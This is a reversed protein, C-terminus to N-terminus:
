FHLTATMLAGQPTPSINVGLVNTGFDTEFMSKYPHRKEWNVRGASIPADILSWIELSLCILAGVQRENQHDTVTVYQTNTCKGTSDTATCKYAMDDGSTLLVWAGVGFLLEQIIGTKVDGVYYQGLGPFILSLAFAAGPSKEDPINSDNDSIPVQAQVPEKTIKTIQNMEFVFISGDATQIKISVNPIQEIVLGKIMSGNKLYVVDQYVIDQSAYIRAEQQMPTLESFPFEEAYVTSTLGMFGAVLVLGFSKMM